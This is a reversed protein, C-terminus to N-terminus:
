KTACVACAISRSELNWGTPGSHSPATKTSHFVLKWDGEPIMAPLSFSLPTDTANFMIAVATPIDEVTNGDGAPQIDMNPRVLTLARDNHWLHSLNLKGGLNQCEVDHWGADNQTHGHVYVETALHPLM